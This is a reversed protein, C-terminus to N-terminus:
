KQKELFFWKSNSDELEMWKGKVKQRWYELKIQLKNLCEERVEAENRGFNNNGVDM